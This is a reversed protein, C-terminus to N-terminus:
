SYDKSRAVVLSILEQALWGILMYMVIAFLTSIEFVYGPEIVYSQFINRFPELLPSTSAYIFEVFGADPNANFLRFFVRFLLAIIAISFVIDIARRLFLVFRNGHM